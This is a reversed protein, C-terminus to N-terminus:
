RLTFVTYEPTELAREFRQEIVEHAPGRTLEVVDKVTRFINAMDFVVVDTDGLRDLDRELVGTCMPWHRPLCTLAWVSSGAPRMASMLYGAPFHTFFLVRRSPEAFARVDSQIASMYEAKAHTTRIGRWPGDAMTTDLRSMPDDNYPHRQHLLFSAILVTPWAISLVDARTPWIERVLRIAFYTSVICAPLQAYGESLVNVSSVVALGLGSLFSPLWLGLFLTRVAARDRLAAYFVPAMMAIVTVNLNAGVSGRPAYALVPLAIWAILAPVRWRRHAAVLLLVAASAIAIKNPILRGQNMLVFKSKKFPGGHRETFDLTYQITEHGLDLFTPLFVLATAFAGVGYPVLTRLKRDQMLWVYAAVVFVFAAAVYVQLSVAAIAHMVGGFAIWGKKPEGRLGHAVAFCGATFGLSGITHYHLNAIGPMQVVIPAACLAALGRDLDPRLRMLALYAVGICCLFYAFRTFLVIGETGGTAHVFASVLPQTVLAATQVPNIEDLFPRDGLAFRYPIALHTAEDEVDVGARLRDMSFIAAIALLVWPLFRQVFASRPSSESM